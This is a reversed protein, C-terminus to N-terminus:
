RGKRPLWTVRMTFFGLGRGWGRHGDCWAVRYRGWFWRENLHLEIRLDGRDRMDHRPGPARKRALTM